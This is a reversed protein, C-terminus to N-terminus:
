LNNKRMLLEAWCTFYSGSGMLWIRRALAVALFVFMVFSSLLHPFRRYVISWWEV